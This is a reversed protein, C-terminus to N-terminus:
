APCLSETAAAGLMSATQLQNNTELAWDRIADARPKSPDKAYRECLDYGYELMKAQNTAVGFALRTALVYLKEGATLPATSWQDVTLDYKPNRAPSTSSSQSDSSKSESSGGCAVVVLAVLAAVIVRRIQGRRM